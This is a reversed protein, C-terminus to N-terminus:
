YGGTLARIGSPHRDAVLYRIAMQYLLAKPEGDSIPASDL